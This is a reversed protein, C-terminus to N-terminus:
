VCNRKSYNKLLSTSLKPTISASLIQTGETNQPKTDDSPIVTTVTSGAGQSQAYAFNIVTGNPLSAYDLTTWSGSGAGDAVYLTKATASSVGKPEHLEAGTLAAHAVM